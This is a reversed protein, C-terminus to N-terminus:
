EDDAAKWAARLRAANAEMTRLFHDVPAEAPGSAVPDFVVVPVGTERSLQDAVHERARPEALIAHAGGARTTRVLEILAAASIRGHGHAPIHGVVQLGTDAVLVDFVESQAVLRRAPTSVALSRLDAAIRDLRAAARAANARLRAADAPALTALGDALRQLMHAAGAPSAFAHTGAPHDHDHDHAAHDHPPVGHVVPGRRGSRRVAKAAFADLGGGHLVVIDATTIARLDQPRLMLDHPCGADPSTLLAPQLTPVGETVIRALQYVPYVSCLVTRPRSEAWAAADLMCALALAVAPTAARRRPFRNPFPDPMM